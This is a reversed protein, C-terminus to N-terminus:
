PCLVPGIKIIQSTKSGLYFYTANGITKAFLTKFNSFTNYPGLIVGFGTLDAVALDLLGEHGGSGGAWYWFQLNDTGASATFYILDDSVAFITEHFFGSRSDTLVFEDVVALSTADIKLIRNGLVPGYAMAYVYNDLAHVASIWPGTAVNFYTNNTALLTPNLPNSVDYKVMSSPGAGGINPYGLFAYYNDNRLTWMNGIALGDVDKIGIQSDDEPDVLVLCHNYDTGQLFYGQWAPRDALGSRMNFATGGGQTHSGEVTFLKNTGVAKYTQTLANGNAARFYIEEKITPGSGSTGVHSWSYHNQGIPPLPLAAVQRLVQEGPEVDEPCPRRFLSCCALQLSVRICNRRRITNGDIQKTYLVKPDTTKQDASARVASKDLLIVDKM